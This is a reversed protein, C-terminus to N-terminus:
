WSLIIKVMMIYIYIYIEQWIYRNTYVAIRQINIYLISENKLPTDGRTRNVLRVIRSKTTTIITHEIRLGSIWNGSIVGQCIHLDKM